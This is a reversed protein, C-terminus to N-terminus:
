DVVVLGDFSAKLLAKKMVSVPDFVEPPNETSSACTNVSVWDDEMAVDPDPGELFVKLLAPSFGNMLAVGKRNHEVPTVNRGAALNWYVIQPLEYGAENFAKEIVDHNTAWGSETEGGSNHQSSDFHMDTFVFFRKIMDEQKLNNAKALPLLLKLFVANYDTNNGWEAPNMERLADFLSSSPHIEAFKPNASFTIFRNAFPPKALQSIILTLSLAPLIPPIGGPWRWCGEIHGM